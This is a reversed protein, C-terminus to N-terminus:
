CTLDTRSTRGSWGAGWTFSADVAHVPHVAHGTPVGVAVEHGVGELVEVAVSHNVRIVAVAFGTRRTRRARGTGSALYTRGPLGTRLARGTRRPRFPIDTRRPRR